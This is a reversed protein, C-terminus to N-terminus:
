PLWGVRPVQYAAVLRAELDPTVGKPYRALPRLQKTHRSSWAGRPAIGNLLNKIQRTSVRALRPTDTSDPNPFRVVLLLATDEVALLEGAIGSRELQMTLDLGAPTAAPAFTEVRAGLVCGAVLATLGVAAFSTRPM